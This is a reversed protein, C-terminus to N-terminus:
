AVESQLMDGPKRKDLWGNYMDLTARLESEFRDRTTRLLEADARFREVERQAEITMQVRAQEAEKLIAEAQKHAAARVEDASRQALTLAESMAAEIKHIRDVETQLEDIKHQLECKEHLASELAECAERVFEDVQSKNYGKLGVKFQTHLMDIPTLSM